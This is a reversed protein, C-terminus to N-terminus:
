GSRDCSDRFTGMQLHSARRCLLVLLLSGWWNRLWFTPGQAPVQEKYIATHLRRLFSSSSWRPTRACHIITVVGSRITWIQARLKTRACSACRALIVSWASASREATQLDPAAM